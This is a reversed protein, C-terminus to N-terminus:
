VRGEKVVSYITLLTLGWPVEGEYLRNLEVLRAIAEEESDYGCRGNLPERAYHPGLEEPEQLLGDSSVEKWFYTKKVM